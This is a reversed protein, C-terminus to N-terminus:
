LRFIRKANATTQIAIDEPQQKLHQALAECVQAVKSPENRQGQYGFLPMDPADTELVLHELGIQEFVKATKIGRPYTIVGGCGLAFELDVYKKADQLSGSFAHVVGGFKPKLQKFCAQILHHSKRHHIILPKQLANALEIQEIFLKQQIAMSELTGDLGCEGIAICSNQGAADAELKQVLTRLQTLDDSTHQALFYPHLGFACHLNMESTHNESVLELQKQWGSVTTGPILIDSVGSQNALCVVDARDDDFATFDLHCHTDFLM